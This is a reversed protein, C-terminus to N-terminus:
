EKRSQLSRGGESSRPMNGALQSKLAMTQGEGTVQWMRETGAWQKIQAGASSPLPLMSERTKSKANVEEGGSRLSGWLSGRM